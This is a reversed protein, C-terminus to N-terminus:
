PIQLSMGNRIRNPDSIADRNSNYIVRWKSADGYFLKAIGSLTGGDKNSGVTYSRTQEPPQPKSSSGDSIRYHGTLPFAFLRDEERTGAGINHIILPVGAATKRDSVIMIHPLNRGVTCTVLDGPRYDSPSDTRPLKQHHRTLFTQLNPVRRHDINRDPRRLGWNRPYSSFSRKMDEHVRKQLDLSLAVRLARVIVDTCVGTEAPVDGNPYDLARYAPNYRVTTGIQSRAAQVIRQGNAEAGVSDLSFLYLFLSVTLPFATKM